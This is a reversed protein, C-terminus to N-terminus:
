FDVLLLPLMTQKHTLREGVGEINWQGQTQWGRPGHTVHLVPPQIEEYYELLAGFPQSQDCITLLHSRIRM